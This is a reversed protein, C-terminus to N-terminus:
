RVQCRALRVQLDLEIGARWGKCRLPLLAALDCEVRLGVAASVLVRLALALADGSCGACEPIRERLLEALRARLEEGRVEHLFRASFFLLM